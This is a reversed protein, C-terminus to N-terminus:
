RRRQKKPTRYAMYTLFAVGGFAAFGAFAWGIVM